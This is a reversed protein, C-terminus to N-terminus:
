NVIAFADHDDSTEKIVGDNTLEVILSEALTVNIDNEAAWALYEGINAEGNEQFYSTVKAKIEGKGGEEQNARVVRRARKAEITNIKLWGNEAEDYKIGEEDLIKGCPDKPILLGGQLRHEVIRLFWWRMFAVTQGQDVVELSTPIIYFNKRINDYRLSGIAIVWDGRNLMEVMPMNEAFATVHLIDRGGDTIAITSAKDGISKNEVMGVVVVKNVPVGNSAFYAGKASPDSSIIEKITAFVEPKRAWSRNSSRSM